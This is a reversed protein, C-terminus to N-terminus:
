VSIQDNYFEDLIALSHFFIHVTITLFIFNIFFSWIRLFAVANFSNILYLKFPLEQVNESSWCSEFHTRIGFLFSFLIHTPMFFFDFDAHLVLTRTTHTQVSKIQIKM